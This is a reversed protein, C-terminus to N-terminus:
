PRCSLLELLSPLSCFSLYWCSKALEGEGEGNDEEDGRTGGGEKDDGGGLYGGEECGEEVGVGAKAVGESGEDM